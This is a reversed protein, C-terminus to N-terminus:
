PRLMKADEGLRIHNAHGGVKGARRQAGAVDGDRVGYAYCRCTDADERPYTLSLVTRRRAYLSLRKRYRDWYRFRSSPRGKAATPLGAQDMLARAAAEGLDAEKDALRRLPYYADSKAGHTEIEKAIDPIVREIV